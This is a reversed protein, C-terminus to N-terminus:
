EEGELRHAAAAEFAEVDELRYLVASGARFFPPVLGAKRLRQVTRLSRNWRQALEREPLPDDHRRPTTAFTSSCKRFM